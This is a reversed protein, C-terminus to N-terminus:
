LTHYGSPRGTPVVMKGPMCSLETAIQFVIFLSNSYGIERL